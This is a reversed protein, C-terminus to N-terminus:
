LRMPLALQIAPPEGYRGIFSALQEPNEACRQSLETTIEGLDLLVAEGDLVFASAHHRLAAEVILPFRDSRDHGDRTFLRVRKDERQVILRYSDHKIEHIWEPRDPM